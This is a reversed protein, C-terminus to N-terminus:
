GGMKNILKSKVVNLNEKVNMIKLEDMWGNEEYNLM